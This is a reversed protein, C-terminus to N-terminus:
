RMSANGGSGVLTRESSCISLPPPMAALAAAVMARRPPLTSSHLRVPPSLAPWRM